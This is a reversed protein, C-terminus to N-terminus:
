QYSVLCLCFALEQTCLLSNELEMCNDSNGRDSFLRVKKEKNRATVEKNSMRGEEMTDKLKRGTIKSGISSHGRLMWVRAAEDSSM